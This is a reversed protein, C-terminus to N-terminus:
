IRHPWWFKSFLQCRDIFSNWLNYHEIPKGGCEMYRQRNRNSHNYCREIDFDMSRDRHDYRFDNYQWWQLDFNFHQNNSCNAASEGDDYYFEINRTFRDCM